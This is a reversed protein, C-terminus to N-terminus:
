LKDTRLRPDEYIVGLSASGRVSIHTLTIAAGASTWKTVESHVSSAGVVDRSLERGYKTRLADLLRGELVNVEVESKDPGEHALSVRVLRATKFFFRARFTAGLIQVDGLELKVETGDELPPRSSTAVGSFLQRVQAESMGASAGQWLEQASATLSLACLALAGFFRRLRIAM